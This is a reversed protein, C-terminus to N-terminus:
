LAVDVCSLRGLEYNVLALFILGRQTTKRRSSTASLNCHNSTLYFFSSSFHVEIICLLFLALGLWWMDLRRYQVGRVRVRSSITGFALQKRAHLALYSGWVTM